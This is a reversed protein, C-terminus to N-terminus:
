NSGATAGLAGAIAALSQPIENRSLDRNRMRSFLRTRWWTRPNLDYSVVVRSGGSEPTIEWRWGAWSPNGDDTRTRYAFVGRAADIELCTSRSRWRPYRPPHMTVVWEAGPAMADPRERVDEIARNWEPLRDVDT